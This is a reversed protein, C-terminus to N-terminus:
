AREEEGSRNSPQLRSRRQRSLAARDAGSESGPRNHCIVRHGFLILVGNDRCERIRGENEILGFPRESATSGSREASARFLRVPRDHEIPGQFAPPRSM